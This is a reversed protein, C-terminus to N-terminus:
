PSDSWVWEETWASVTSDSRLLNPNQPNGIRHFIWMIIQEECLGLGAASQHVSNPRAVQILFYNYTITCMKKKRTLVNGESNPLLWQSIVYGHRSSLSQITLLKIAKRKTITIFCVLLLWKPSNIPGSLVSNMMSLSHSVKRVWLFCVSLMENVSPLCLSVLFHSPAIFSSFGAGWSITWGSLRM